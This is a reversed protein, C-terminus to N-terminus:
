ITACRNVDELTKNGTFDRFIHSRSSDDYTAHVPSFSRWFSPVFIESALDNYIEVIQEPTHEFALLTGPGLEPLHNRCRGWKISVAVRTLTPPTDRM